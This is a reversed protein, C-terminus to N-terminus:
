PEVVDDEVVPFEGMLRPSVAPKKTEGDETGHDTAKANRGSHPM